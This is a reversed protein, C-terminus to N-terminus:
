SAMRLDLITDANGPPLGTVAVGHAHSLNVTKYPFGGEPCGIIPWVTYAAAGRCSLAALM